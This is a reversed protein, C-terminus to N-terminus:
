SQPIFHHHHHDINGQKKESSDFPIHDILCKKFDEIEKDLADMEDIDNEQLHEEFGNTLLTSPGITLSAGSNFPHYLPFDDPITSTQLEEEYPYKWQSETSNRGSTAENWTSTVHGVTYSMPSYVPFSTNLPEPSPRRICRPGPAPSFSSTPRQVPKQPLLYSNPDWYPSSSPQELLLIENTKNPILLASSPVFAPATALLTSSPPVQTQEPVTTTWASPTESKQQQSTQTKVTSQARITPVTTTHQKNSNTVTEPIVKQQALNQANSSKTKNTTPQRKPKSNNPPVIPVALLSPVPIPKHKSQKRSITIWNV